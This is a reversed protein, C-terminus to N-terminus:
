LGLIKATVFWKLEGRGLEPSGSFALAAMAGKKMDLWGDELGALMAALYGVDPAHGVWAVRELGSAHGETWALLHKPDGGPLLEKREVLKTEAGLAALLIEATQVCRLLPSTVILQPSLGRPVLAAVMSAFRQRGKDTLPRLADDPFAADDREAAWAHRIIFLEM